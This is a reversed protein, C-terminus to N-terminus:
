AAPSGQFKSRLGPPTPNVPCPNWERGQVQAEDRAMQVDERSEARSPSGGERVAAGQGPVDWWGAAGM